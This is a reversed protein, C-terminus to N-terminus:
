AARARARRAGPGRADRPQGALLQGHLGQPTLEHRGLREIIQGRAERHHYVHGRAKVEAALARTDEQRPVVGFLRGAELAVEVGREDFLNQRAGGRAHRAQGLRLDVRAAGPGAEVLHRWVVVGDDAAGWADAAEEEGVAEAAVADHVRGGGAADKGVEDEVVFRAEEVGRRQAGLAEGFALEEFLSRNESGQNYFEDARFLSGWMM